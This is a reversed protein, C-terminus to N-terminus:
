RRKPPLEPAVRHEDQRADDFCWRHGARATTQVWVLREGGPTAVRAKYVWLGQGAHYPSDPPAKRTFRETNVVEGLAALTGALTQQDSQKRLAFVVFM